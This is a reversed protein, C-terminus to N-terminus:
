FVDCISLNVFFICLYWILSTFLTFYVIIISRSYFFLFESELYFINELKMNENGMYARAVIFECRGVCDVSLLATM